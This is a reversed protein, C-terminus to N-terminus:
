ISLRRHPARNCKTHPRVFAQAAEDYTDLSDLENKVLCASIDEDTLEFNLTNELIDDADSTNKEIADVMLKAASVATDYLEKTALRDFHIM